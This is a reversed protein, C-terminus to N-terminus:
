EYNNEKENNSAQAVETLVNIIEAYLTYVDIDNTSINRKTLRVELMDAILNINGKKPYFGLASGFLLSLQGATTNLDIENNIQEIQM